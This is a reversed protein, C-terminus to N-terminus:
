GSRQPPEYKYNEPDNLWEQWEKRGELVSLMTKLWHTPTKLHGPLKTGADGFTDNIQEQTLNKTGTMNTGTLNAKELVAFTLHTGELRANYLEARELRAFNLYAGELNTNYLSANKLNAIRFDFEEFHRNALYINQFDVYQLNPNFGYWKEWEKRNDEIIDLIAIIDAPPLIPEKLESGSANENQEELKSGSANEVIYACLLEIIQRRHTKSEKAIRELGYIGGLRVELNSQTEEGEGKIKVIKVEGLQGVARIYSDTYFRQVNIKRQEDLVSIRWYTFIAGGVGAVALIINQGWEASIGLVWSVAGVIVFLLAIHRIPVKKSDFYPMVPQMFNQLAAKMQQIFGRKWARFGMTIAFAIALTIVVAIGICLVEMGYGSLNWVDGM